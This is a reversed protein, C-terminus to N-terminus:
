GVPEPGDRATEFAFNDFSTRLVTKGDQKQCVLNFFAVPAKEQVATALIQMEDCPAGTTSHPLWISFESKAACHEGSDDMITVTVLDRMGNRTQKQVAPSMEAVLAIVDVFQGSPCQLLSHINEPPTAMRPM